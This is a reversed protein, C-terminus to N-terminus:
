CWGVPRPHWKAVTGSMLTMQIGGAALFMLNRPIVGPWFYRVPGLPSRKSKQEDLKVAVREIFSVSRPWELIGDLWDRPIGRRAPRTRATPM